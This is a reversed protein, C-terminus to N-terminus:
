VILCDQASIDPNGNNKLYNFVSENINGYMYYSGICLNFLMGSILARLKTSKPVEQEPM